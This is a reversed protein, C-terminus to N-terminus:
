AARWSRTSTGTVRRAMVDTMAWYVRSASSTLRHEYDHVLRRHFSLIGLTQEVV